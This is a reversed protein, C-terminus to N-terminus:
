LAQLVGWLPLEASSGARAGSPRAVGQGPMSGPEPGPRLCCGPGAVPRGLPTGPVWGSAAWAVWSSPDPMSRPLPSSLGPDVTRGKNKGAALYHELGASPSPQVTAIGGVASPLATQLSRPRPRPHNAETPHQSATDPPLCCCETQLSVSLPIYISDRQRWRKM